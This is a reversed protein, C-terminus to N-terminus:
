PMQSARRQDFAALAATFRDPEQRELTELQHLLFARTQSLEQLRTQADLLSRAAILLEMGQQYAALAARDAARIETSITAPDTLEPGRICTEPLAAAAHPAVTNM